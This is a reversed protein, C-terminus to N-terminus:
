MVNQRGSISSGSRALAFQFALSAQAERSWLSMEEGRSAPRICHYKDTVYLYCAFRGNIGDRRCFVMWRSYKPARRTISLPTEGDRFTLRASRSRNEMVHVSFKLVFPCPSLPVFFLHVM